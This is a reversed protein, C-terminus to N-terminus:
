IRVPFDEPFKASLEHITGRDATIEPGSIKERFATVRVSVGFGPFSDCQEEILMHASTSRLNLPTCVEEEDYPAEAARCSTPRCLCAPWRTTKNLTIFESSDFLLQATIYRQHLPRAAPLVGLDFNEHWIVRFEIRM